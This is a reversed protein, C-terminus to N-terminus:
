SGRRPSACTSGIGPCGAIADGATVILRERQADSRFAWQQNPLLFWAGTASGTLAFFRQEGLTGRRERSRRSISRHPPLVAQNEPM